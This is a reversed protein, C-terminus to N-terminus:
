VPRPAPSVQFEYGERRMTEILISFHMEGRGAVTFSDSNEVERVHLSSM